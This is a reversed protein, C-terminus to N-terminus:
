GSFPLGPSRGSQALAESASLGRAPVLELCPTGEWLGRDLGGQALEFKGVRSGPGYQKGELVSQALAVLLREATIEAGPEIGQVEFEPLAFKQLGRTYTHVGAASGRSLVNVHERADVQPNVRPVRFLQNPLLYRESVPDAIVGETLTGLRLCLGLIFDLAPYVDPDHATIRLQLVSWTARIRAVVEGELGLSESHRAVAEPDFGSEERNLVLMQFATKRDKSLMGYAGRVLPQNLSDKNASAAMPVGYGILAGDDGKPNVVEHMSPLRAHTALVSLYFGSGIGFGPGKPKSFRLM